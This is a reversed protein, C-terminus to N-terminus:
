LGSLTGLALDVNGGERVGRFQANMGSLKNEWRRKRCVEGKNVTPINVGIILRM